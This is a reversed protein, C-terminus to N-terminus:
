HWSKQISKLLIKWPSLTFYNQLLIFWYFLIRVRTLYCSSLPYLRKVLYFETESVLMTYYNIIWLVSLKIPWMSTQSPQQPRFTPSFKSMNTVVWTVLMSLNAGVDLIALWCLRVLIKIRNQEFKEMLNHERTSFDLILWLSMFYFHLETM